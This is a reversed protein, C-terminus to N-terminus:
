RSDKKFFLERWGDGLFSGLFAGGIGLVLPFFPGLSAALDPRFVWTLFMAGSGAAAAGFWSNHLAGVVVGGAACVIALGWGGAWFGFAFGLVGGLVCQTIRLQAAMDQGLLSPAALVAQSGAEIEPAAIWRELEEASPNDGVNVRPLAGAQLRAEHFADPPIRAVATRLAALAVGHEGLLQAAECEDERLIALLMHEPGIMQHGAATAEAGAAEFARKSAPSLPFREMALGDGHRDLAVEVKRLLLEPRGEIARLLAFAPGDADCLLGFLLHETGVFDHHRRKAERFARQMVRRASATFRSFM